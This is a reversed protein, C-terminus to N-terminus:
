EALPQCLRRRPCNTSGTRAGSSGPRPESPCREGAVGFWRHRSGHGRGIGLTEVVQHSAAKQAEEIGEWVEKWGEVDDPLPLAVNRGELTFASAAAQAEASITTPVPFGQAVAAETTTVALAGMVITVTELFRM